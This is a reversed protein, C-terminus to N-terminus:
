SRPKRGEKGCRYHAAVGIWLAQSAQEATIRQGRYRSNLIGLLVRSEIYGQPPLCFISQRSDAPSHRGVETLAYAWGSIWSMTRQSDDDELEFEVKPTWGEPEDVALAPALLFLFLFLLVAINIRTAM